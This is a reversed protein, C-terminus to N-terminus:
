LKSPTETVIKQPRYNGSFLQQLWIEFTLYRCLQKSFDQGQLHKELEMIVKERPLYHQFLASPSRLIQDFIGRAPSQRIWQPYNVYSDPNDHQIGVLRLAKAGARKGRSIIKHILLHQPSVGIPLGTKQWPIEQFYEPFRQLLMRNYLQSNKILEQPLSLTFEILSNDFFPLRNYNLFVDGLRGAEAVFRRGRHHIKETQSWTKDGLYSGGLVADGLFGNLNVEYHTRIKPIAALAHMHMLDVHGDTWWIGNFRESVWNSNDLDYVHHIAGKKNAVIQAIMIDSCGPKGFTVTHIPHEIEPIAALLARSDLGGSLTVGVRENARVRRRVARVFLRGLEELIETTSGSVKQNSIDAWTWYLREQLSFTRLDWSLITGPSLLRIEQIWTHNGLFHGYNLFDQMATTDIQPVFGPMHLLAKVESAWALGNQTKLLYLHRLGYRDSFLHVRENETDYLVGSFIGDVNRLFDLGREQKFLHLIKGTDHPELGSDIALEDLNFIEGELWLLLGELSRPQPNHSPLNIHTLSCAINQDIFFQDHAYFDAHTIAEQMMRLLAIPAEIQLATFGVLGPM